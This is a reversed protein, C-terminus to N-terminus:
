YIGSKRHDLKSKGGSDSLSARSFSNMSAVDRIEENLTIDRGPIGIEGM